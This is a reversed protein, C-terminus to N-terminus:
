KRAHLVSNSCECKAAFEGRWREYSDKDEIEVVLVEDARTSINISYLVGHFEIDVQLETALV